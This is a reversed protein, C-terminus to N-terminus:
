KRVDLFFYNSIPPTEEKKVGFSSSSDYNITLLSKGRTRGLLNIYGDMIEAANKETSSNKTVIQGHDLEPKDVRMMGSGEQDALSPDVGFVSYGLCGREVHEIREGYFVISQEPFILKGTQNEVNLAYGPISGYVPDIKYYNDDGKFFISDSLVLETKFKPDEGEPCDCSILSIQTEPLSM